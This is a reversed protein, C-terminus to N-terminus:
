SIREDNTRRKYENYLKKWIWLYVFYLIFMNVVFYILYIAIFVLYDTLSYGREWITSHLGHTTIYFQDYIFNPAIAFIGDFFRFGFLKGPSTPISVLVFRIIEKVLVTSLFSKLITKNDNETNAEVKLTRSFYISTIYISTIVAVSVSVILLLIYLFYNQIFIEHFPLSKLALMFIVMAATGALNSGMMVMFYNMTLWGKDKKM